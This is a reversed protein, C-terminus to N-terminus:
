ELDCLWSVTRSMGFYARKVGLGTNKEFDTTKIMCKKKKKKFM